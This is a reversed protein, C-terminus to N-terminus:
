SPFNEGCTDFSRAYGISRHQAAAPPTRPPFAGPREPPPSSTGTWAYGISRHQAAAPPPGPPSRGRGRRLLGGAPGGPPVLHITYSVSHRCVLKTQGNKLPVTKCNLTSHSDCGLSTIPVSFTHYLFVNKAEVKRTKKM